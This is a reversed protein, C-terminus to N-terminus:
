TLTKIALNSYMLYLQYVAKTTALVSHRLYKAPKDGDTDINVRTMM